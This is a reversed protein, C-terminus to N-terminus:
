FIIYMITIRKLETAFLRKKSIDREPPQGTADFRGTQFHSGSSSLVQDLLMSPDIKKFPNTHGFYFEV